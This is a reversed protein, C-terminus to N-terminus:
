LFSPVGPSPPPSCIESQSVWWGVRKSNATKEPKKLFTHFAKM